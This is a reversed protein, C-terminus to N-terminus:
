AKRKKKKYYGLKKIKTIKENYIYMCTDVINSQKKRKFM